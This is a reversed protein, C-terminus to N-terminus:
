LLGPWQSSVSGLLFVITHHLEQAQPLELWITQPNDASGYNLELGPPGDEKLPSLLHLRQLDKLIISCCLKQSSPDMIVLHQRNLGLLVPGPLVLKSVRLVVYVTHGFLPLQATTEIFGIQAKEKSYGQMQRLEQNVLSRINATNVQRQLTKPIYSLLEQESPPSTSSARDLHQFAALQALLAEAQTSVMLKGQLYDRLVQGYHTETYTLHDFHLPTEWSLRRSHLSMDQDTMVNNIYEHSSLPRVLEGEGKILFLAFEQVEELDTVGMQGCMEELVEGAVTFTQSNTRYDVGGPLHVLLLRVAQGKLFAHMEGPLPLHQRGGYKVTRQLNEQSRQALEQSPSSDQLFKTLYPMLTTSPAFFGTFLSLVSWGLACHKPQPHGTVQKIVQCYMEDRLDEQCLKLLEYLLSLADKGRPKPQDGMFQMLAKFGAVAKSHTDESCFSTLSEQIPDKTYQIMNLVAKKKTDGSMQTLWTHPKRFYRLAFEQMTYNHPEASLSSCTTLSTAELDESPEQTRPHTPREETKRVEQAPGPKSKRQWSNRKGLSFSLDPAAAPQVLDAPFLGSRGGASGFQWGPELAAVPLLRILDGRHFSLLSNDDTIYSRLAIVYGSDKRLESLFQEVMDRIARAWTTHLILQENKLSLELTSRNRCQVTLVEAYSYSCLTKLQELHFSPSQTVKLLRLGRHSVGLLQVDSGSEGSVPFIRSFYNAWNDRAAVVIRKKISDEATDLSDLGVELDGLLGKMKHREDQSIRTCSETFTDRLIQQCLLSLCYPHSFNERPYFVEKRLFLKWPANAYSFCVSGSPVLLKTSIGKDEMPETLAHSEVSPTKPEGPLPQPLAPPPPPAPAMPPNPNCPGFLDRLPGQKEQISISPELRPRAKSRPVVDPPSGKGQNPSPSPPSHTGNIGLKALAEDKPDNKKQFTKFPRTPQVPVPVPGPRSQYMRIINRIERSPEPRQPTPNSSQVPPPRSSKPRQPTPNSSEEQAPEVEDDKVAKPQSQKPPKKVVPPPPPPPPSLEALFLSSSQVSYAETEEEDEDEETEEQPIQVKAPPKVTKVKIPEQGMKQFYERKQQFSRPRQPRSEAEEPTDRLCVDLHELNSEPKEQPAPPKKAKPAITSPPPQSAAESAQAQYQRRQNQQELSLSMAQTTMQQALIMAQQNIFNQQQVALQRTDLSPMLPQPQPPVMMAPMTPVTGMAPMMPMPAPMMAPQYSPAQVMGPYVMPYGQQTPGISGGGKMRRSLARGQELDSFGPSLVPEFLHDLFGDLNGPKRAEGPPGSSPLGPAPGPPPGPPLPPAQVGPAPPINEALGLPAIPYNHPGSPDGLDETQGILDLVFDCGPLDQWADGSHLSVSWGRPPAELGRSQLIWGAFQEGTTWSEVEASYSEENFTFVDLAMRGRRLGAKWELHTPPHSRSAMPALPTQELAGLLKHQCLAAMGSPAHDSVFKLLPKELAPTPPFSSLLIAMLAWGRQCQQEDPNHWLQTVLQSFLEDRLGPRRQAQQVLFTGMTQEQWSQLSGEGLLRLMVRNIELAQQPNEGDLRTLPEDLPQGPPPLFPKQFSTSLFSSFPFQDIDPPLSLSPRAPVEPPLCETISGTLMAQHDEARELLAALQAPIELRGLDMNSAKGWPEGRQLGRSRQLKQRRRLLPQAVLLITNLQGLASRRRLYRKRAQLGRVRAQMRPLLRLRQRTICTRLGRHLTLLAQSRRQAWLQELQQWGQEQLFVQTVGLHYLSSEPGLLDNLIVGCREQDSVAKQRGSELARFRALFVQFPVRVPFHTSRTGIVELIGAQRLQEAVHGVDFLGPLKGPTPNLCHIVYVHSRGLRALLDGLSQQFRSALTPKSQEAGVQPEAEQFLSGMLQLQSQRLAELMAPDLRDRNRNIFKHVQYTVTGAYHRVMFIPLPLQPKAYSPHDGHHYHCKQLFTHDTAQSLWTQTDLISLLSHPQGVLLDLCSERPPQPIPAWKLLEQQCVAEEQALLRQSSFLQLRESALNSCLQELGNVRLAEFGFADVVAITAVSDAEKPPSLKVSIRKLLWTFLRTYLTKALADRADIAAEVPLSRSVPGYPTDMVRKTVAEELREPPVQLLRAALHIETWSSVAAVEQSERESSSFCINGLHLITALVAWVATLDEACLGLVRLAKVLEKFDQVDDKGQLRCARGQFVVRSTELLYHSVSAGVIVGQQLCLCIEQGFRSANANLITKAHGFSGLVPLIDQLQAGNAEMPKQGISSLFELIKKAAETKGSGSHGRCSPSGLLICSDTGSSQSLSYAAVGIAFIHPMTNPAKRPHYSALVESSFLPLPKHPNLALLLPGGFTYIRDLHFRKKLCLLVSSDCVLRLRALDEIDQLGEPLSRTKAGLFPAMELDRQLSLELDRELAAEADDEPEWRERPSRCPSNQRLRTELTLQPLLIDAGLEPDECPNDDQAWHVGTKAELTEPEAERRNEDPPTGNPVSPFFCPAQHSRVVDEGNAESEERDEAAGAPSLVRGEGTPADTSAGSSSSGSEKGANHIRPFVVAFKPDPAPDQIASADDSVSSSLAQPPSPGGGPPARPTGRLGVLRCALRLALWRRPGPAGGRAELAGERGRERPSAARAEARRREVRLRLWRLFSLARAVRQLRAKLGVRIGGALQPSAGTPPRRRLRRLVVLAALPTRDRPGPDGAGVQERAGADSEGAAVQVKRAVEGLEQVAGPVEAAEPETGPLEAKPQAGVDNTDIIARSDRPGQSGRPVSSAAAEKGLKTEQSEPIGSSTGSIKLPLRRHGAWGSSSDTDTRSDDCARQLGTGSSGERSQLELAHGESGPHNSSPRKGQVLTSSPGIIPVSESSTGSPQMKPPREPAGGGQSSSDQAERAESDLCSSGGDGGSTDGDRVPTEGHGRRTSPGRDKGRKRRGRKGKREKEGSLRQEETHEGCSDGPEHSETPGHGLRESSVQREQSEQSTGTEANRSRHNGEGTPKRHGGATGKGETAELETAPKTKRAKGRAPRRDRSPAGDASASGSEQEASAPRGPAARRQPAKGKSGGM